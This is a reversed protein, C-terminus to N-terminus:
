APHRVPLIPTSWFVVGLSIELIHRVDRFYSTVTALAFAVGTTFLVELALILPLLLIAPSLRAGFMILALPLFVVITLLFQTLNFIGTAVPLIVRPFAVSKILGGADVIAGTSMMTSNAFFTWNLLGLLLSLHVRTYSNLV